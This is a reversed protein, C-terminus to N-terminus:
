WIKKQDIITVIIPNINAARLALPLFLPPNPPIMVCIKALKKSAPQAIIVNKTIGIITESFM